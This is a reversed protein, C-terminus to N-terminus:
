AAEGSSDQELFKRAEEAAMEALIAVWEALQHAINARYVPNKEKWLAEGEFYVAYRYAVVSDHPVIHDEPTISSNM